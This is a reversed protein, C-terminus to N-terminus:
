TEGKYCIYYDQTGLFFHFVWDSVKYHIKRPRQNFQLLRSVAFAIDPRKAIIAFLLSSVKPQYFIRSVDFVEQKNSFPLLKAIDIPIILLQGTLKTDFKHCIKTIYAKQLLLITWKIQNWVIHFGLFWKLENIKKITITRWLLKVIQDIKDKQDKKYAFVIDNVYLFSIIGNKQVVCPEQFIEQFSLKKLENTM